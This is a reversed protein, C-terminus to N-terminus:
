EAQGHEEYRPRNVNVVEHDIDVAIVYLVVSKPRPSIEDHGFLLEDLQFYEALLLEFLMFTCSNDRPFFKVVVDFDVALLRVSLMLWLLFNVVVDIDVNKNGVESLFKAYKFFYVVHKVGWCLGLM